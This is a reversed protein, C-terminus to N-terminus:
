ERDVGVAEDGKFSIWPQDDQDILDKKKEVMFFYKARGAVAFAPSHWTGRNIVIVQGAKILFAKTTDANPRADEVGMYVPLDVLMILDQTTAWLVEERSVHREMGTIRAPLEESYVIGIGVTGEAMIFDVPSYCTWNEGAKTIKGEYAEVLRGYSAFSEVTLETVKIRKM